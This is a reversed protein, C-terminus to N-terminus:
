DAPTNPLKIEETQKIEQFKDAYFTRKEEDSLCSTYLEILPPYADKDKAFATQYDTLYNEADSCKESALYTLGLKLKTKTLSPDLRLAEQYYSQAQEFKGFRSYVDGNLVRSEGYIRPIDALMVHTYSGLAGAMPDQYKQWLVENEKLYDDVTMKKAIEDDTLRAVLGTQIWGHGAILLQDNQGYVAMSSNNALIREYNEEPTKELDLPLEPYQGALNPLYYPSHFIGYHVLKINRWNKPGGGSYYVYQTDFLMTDDVLFLVSNDPLSNLVDLGLNEATRDNKLPALKFFNTLLLVLPLLLLLSSWALNLEKGMILKIGTTLTKEFIMIGFALLIALFLYPILLFREITGLLFNNLFPFGSYYLFLPGSILFGLWVTNTERSKNRWWYVVGGFLMISIGLGTFDILSNEGAIKLIYFRDLNILGAAPGARFTGYDTRFFLKLLNILNTPADWNIPPNGLASFYVYIYPALGLIFFGILKFYNVKKRLKILNPWILYLWVPWLIIGTHHHSLTLGSMFVGFYLWKLENKDKLRLFSYFTLVVILIHMAFVEPVIAYLWYLYSFGLTLVSIISAITHKTLKKTIIYLVGLSLASPISSLLSVRWAVTSYPIKTLLWGLFTYLPYGPPHAVGRVYAATVLDGADGGYISTSQFTLYIILFLLFLLSAILFDPHKFKKLKKFM